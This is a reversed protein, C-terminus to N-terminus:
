LECGPLALTRNEPNALFVRLDDPIEMRSGGRNPQGLRMQRCAREFMRSGETARKRRNGKVGSGAPFLASRRVGRAPSVHLGAAPHDPTERGFGKGFYGRLFVVYALGGLIGLIGILPVAVFIVAPILNSGGTKGNYCYGCDRCRVHTFMAPGY